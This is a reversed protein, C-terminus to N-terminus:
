FLLDDDDGATALNIPDKLLEISGGGQKLLAEQKDLWKQREAAAKNRTIEKNKQIKKLRFFEEREGEDLETIIYTITREIRPIIVSVYFLRVNGCM